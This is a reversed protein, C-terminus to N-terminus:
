LISIGMRHWFGGLHIIPTRSCVQLPPCLGYLYGKLVVKLYPYLAQVKGHFTVFLYGKRLVRSYYAGYVAAQIMSHFRAFSNRQFVFSTTFNTLIRDALIIAVLDDFIRLM